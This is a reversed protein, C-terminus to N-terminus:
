AARTVALSGCVDSHKRVTARFRAFAFRVGVTHGEIIAIQTISRHKTAPRLALIIRRSDHGARRSVIILTLAVYAIRSSSLTSHEGGIRSGGTIIFVNTREARCARRTLALSTLVLTFARCIGVTRIVVIKAVARGIAVRGSEGEGTLGIRRGNRFRAIGAGVIRFALEALGAHQVPTGTANL